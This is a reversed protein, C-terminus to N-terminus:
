AGSALARERHILTSSLGKVPEQLVFDFEIEAFPADLGRKAIEAPDTHRGLQPVLGDRTAFAFDDNLLPDDAINIQTTLHRYEPASIFFHIHAPRQGHRGVKQLLKETPGGPPVGYGAPMITRFAYRGQEDTAIRRRLNFPKQSPDFHSYNGKTDAHWM